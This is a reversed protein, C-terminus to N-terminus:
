YGFRKMFKQVVINQAFQEIEERRKDQKWRGLSSTDIPRAPSKKDAGPLTKESRPDIKRFEHAKSFPYEIRLRFREALDQQIRDPDSCFDEYRVFHCGETREEFKELDELYQQLVRTEDLAKDEKIQYLASSIRDRPDRALFIVQAGRRQWSTIQRGSCPFKSVWVYNFQRVVRPPQIYINHEGPLVYVNSFSQFSLQLLTTGSRPFGSIHYHAAM